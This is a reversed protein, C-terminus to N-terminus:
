DSKYLGDPGASATFFLTGGVNTLLAPASDAAEPNIDAVLSTGGPTGDSRWLERGHTPDAATFYILGGVEVLDAPLSGDLGPIIDGVLAAAPALRGELAELRLRRARRAPPPRPAWKRLAPVQM